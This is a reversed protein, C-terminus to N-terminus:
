YSAYKRLPCVLIQYFLSVSHYVEVVFAIDQFPLSVIVSFRNSPIHYDSSSSGESTSLVYLSLFASETQDLKNVLVVSM